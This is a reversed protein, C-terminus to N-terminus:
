DIEGDVDGDVDGYKINNNIKYLCPVNINCIDGEIGNYGKIGDIGKIGVDNMKYYYFWIIFSVIIINIGLLCYFWVYGNKINGNNLTETNMTKFLIKLTDWFLLILILFLATILVYM